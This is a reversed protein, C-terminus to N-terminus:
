FDFKRCYPCIFFFLHSSDAFLLSSALLDSFLFLWFFSSAPARFPLFTAFRQIKGIIRPELPDFLLSALAAPASGDPWIPSSFNCATTARLVNPLSFALFVASKAASIDFFHVSNRSACKSTLICLGCWARFVKPLQSTSFTCLIPTRLSMDFDFHWFCWM